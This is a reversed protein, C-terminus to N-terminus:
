PREPADGPRAFRFTESKDTHYIYQQGLAVLTVRYGLTEGPACLEPSPLGLCTDPWVAAEVELVEISTPALGLQEALDQRVLEAPRPLDSRIPSATTSRTPGDTASAPSTATPPTTEDGPQGAECAVALALGVLALAGTLVLPGLLGRPRPSKSTLGCKGERGASM